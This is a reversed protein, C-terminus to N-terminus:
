KTVHVEAGKLEWVKVPLVVGHNGVTDCETLCTEDVKVHVELSDLYKAAAAKCSSVAWSGM